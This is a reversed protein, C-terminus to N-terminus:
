KTAASLEELLLCYGFGASLVSYCFGHDGGESVRSKSIAGFVRTDRSLIVHHMTTSMIVHYVRSADISLKIVHHM